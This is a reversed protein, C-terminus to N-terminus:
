SAKPLTFFFHSGNTPGSKYGVTGGLKEVIRRVIALGLGHSEGNENQAFRSFEIFLTEQREDHVGPGSDKVWFCVMNPTHNECSLVIEPFEGGYKLANTLYNMWVEEIWPQYGVATEWEDPLIIQAQFKEIQQHLRNLVNSVATAMNIPELPVEAKNVTALLLLANIIQSAQNASQGIKALASYLLGEKPLDSVVEPLMEAYGMIVAIPQKLDHAVTRAYADLEETKQKYLEAEQQITRTKHVIQLQRVHRDAQEHYLKKDLEHFQEFHHLAQLANGLCKYTQVLAQHCAALEMQNQLQEALELAKQLVPLAEDFQNKHHLAAGIKRLSYTEVYLFGLTNALDASEGLYFLAEDVSKQDLYLEGLTCLTNAEVVSLKQQRAVQLSEQAKDVATDLDGMAQYAMAMNNLLIATMNNTDLATQLDLAKTYYALEQSYDHLLHSIIGLNTLIALEERTNNQSTVLALAQLYYDLAEKHEGLDKFLSGLIIFLQPTAEVSNQTVAMAYAQMAHEMAVENNGLRFYCASLNLLSGYLGQIYPPSRQALDYAKQSLLLAEQPNVQSHPGCFANLLNIREVIDETNNLQAELEEVTKVTM